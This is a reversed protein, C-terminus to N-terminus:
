KRFALQKAYDALDLGYVARTYDEREVGQYAEALADDANSLEDIVFSWREDVNDRELLDILSCVRIRLDDIQSAVEKEQDIRMKQTKVNEQNDAMIYKSM